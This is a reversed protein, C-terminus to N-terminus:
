KCVQRENLLVSLERANGKNKQILIVGDRYFTVGFNMREATRLTEFYDECSWFRLDKLNLFIVEAEPRLTSVPARPIMEIWARHTLHPAYNTTTLVALDKPVHALGDRISSNNSWIMPVPAKQGM